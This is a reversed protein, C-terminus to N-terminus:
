YVTVVIIAGGGPRASGATAHRGAAAGGARLTPRALVHAHEHTRYRAGRGRAGVRGPVTPADPARQDGRRAAASLSSLENERDRDLLM